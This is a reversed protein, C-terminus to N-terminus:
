KPTESLECNMYHMVGNRKRSTSGINKLVPAIARGFTRPEEVMERGNVEAWTNYAKMADESSTCSMRSFAVYQAAWDKVGANLANLRAEALIPADVTLEADPGLLEVPAGPRHLGLVIKQTTYNERAMSCNLRRRLLRELDTDILYRGSETVLAHITCNIWPSDEAGMTLDPPCYVGTNQAEGEPRDWQPPACALLRLANLLLAM